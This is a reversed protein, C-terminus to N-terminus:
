IELVIKGTTHKGEIHRHAAKAERVPYIKEVHPKLQGSEIWGGLQILDSKLSKVQVLRSRRNLGIRALLEGYLTIGKPVTSIFVGKPGLQGAFHKRSLKGFVDFVCDFSASIEPAPKLTYDYVADAGLSAVFDQHKPGCVGHVEAGLAKAIQVGFHGVGGSAGNILVKHGPRIQGCDRLAQLATQASLPVSAAVAPSISSPKPAIENVNLVAYESHVGGSFRNTMGFVLDGRVFDTVNGGVQLVEGAVDFGAIRPLPDRALTKSFKGKRLLVDKPNVSGAIVKLMVQNDSIEPRPWDQVWKLVEPDGFSRYILAKM